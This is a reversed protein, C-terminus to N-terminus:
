VVIDVDHEDQELQQFSQEEEQEKSAISRTRVVNVPKQKTSERFEQLVM